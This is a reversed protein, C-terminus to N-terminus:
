TDDSVLTRIATAHMLDGDGEYIIRIAMQDSGWGYESSVDVRLPLQRIVYQSFDGYAVSKSASAVAAMSPNELVPRGLLTPQFANLLGPDYLYYGDSTRFQRIKSMASNSVMWTGVARWPVPLVHYLSIIDLPGFFTDHALQGGATGSTATWGASGATIFGNPDDTGDGTTVAAGFSIGIARGGTEALLSELGIVNDRWLQTSVVQISKYGYAVLSVSSITADSLTIGANEATITGGGAADATLRPLTLPNGNPTNLVRAVSLTPNLTRAYVSVMEAFTTPVATGGESQLARFEPREASTFSRVEGRIMQGLMERDTPERREVRAETVQPAMEARWTNAKEILEAREAYRKQEKLLNDLDADMREVQEREEPTLERKEELTRDLLAKQAEWASGVREKLSNSYADM